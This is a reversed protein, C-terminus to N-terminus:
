KKKGYRKGNVTVNYGKAALRKGLWKGYSKKTELTITKTKPDYYKVNANALAM